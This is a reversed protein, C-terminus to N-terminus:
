EMDPRKIVNKLDYRSGSKDKRTGKEIPKRERTRSRRDSAEDREKRDRGYEGMTRNSM